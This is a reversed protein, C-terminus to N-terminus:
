SFNKALERHTDAWAAWPVTIWIVLAATVALALIAAMEILEGVRQRFVGLMLLAMAAAALFMEPIVAAAGAQEFISMM